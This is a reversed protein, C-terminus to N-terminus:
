FTGRLPMAGAVPGSLCPALWGTRLLVLRSGLLREVDPLTLKWTGSNPDTADSSEGIGTRVM